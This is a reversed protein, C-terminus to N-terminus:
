WSNRMDRSIWKLIEQMSSLLRVLHKAYKTVLKSMDHLVARQPQASIDGGLHFFSVCAELEDIKEKLTHPANDWKDLMNEAM